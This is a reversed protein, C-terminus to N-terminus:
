SQRRLLHPMFFLACILAASVGILVTTGLSHLSPHRGLILIGFSALTTLGSARVAPITALDRQENERSVLFIGYDIGLGIVLPLATIHFLNLPVSLAGLVGFVSALGIAAPLIALGARRVDRFLLGVLLVAGLGSLSIFTKIDDKMAAELGRKMRGNSVFRVGLEKETQPSFLAQTQESDPVLTLVSPHGSANPLLLDILFGLSAERMADPTIDDVTKSFSQEFPAFAKASFGLKAGEAHITAIVSEQQEDTWFDAWARRNTAQTTQSPMLPTLSVTKATPLKDTLLDATRESNALADDLTAGKAFIVGKDRMDGWTTKFEQEAQRIDDPEYGISRLDPDLQISMGFWLAAALFCTLLGLAAGPRQTTSKSPTSKGVFTAKGAMHPLVLLSFLAAVVLGCIAFTALQNIGAMGSFYLAAFATCSTLACSMIPKFTAQVAEGPSGQHKALAFYVHMSFDISIGILVSGFGIVIASVEGHFLGMGGMAAGLAILPAIFVGAVRATRFFLLFILGLGCLSVSSVVLIDRKITTANAHTYALGGILSATMNDPLKTRISDVSEVLRKAGDADTMAVNGRGTLLIARYDQSFLYGGSVTANSMNQYTRLRPFLIFRLGLPDHRIVNKMAMGQPTALEQKARSLSAAIAEPTLLAKMRSRDAEGVLNPANALLFDMVKLPNVSRSDMLTVLEKPLGDEVMRAAAVLDDKTAGPGAQISIFINSSLGSEELLRFDSALQGNEGQPFMVAIDSRIPATLFLAICGILFLATVVFLPTRRTNLYDYTAHLRGPGSM